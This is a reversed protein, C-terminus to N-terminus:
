VYIWEKTITNYIASFRKGSDNWIQLQYVGDINLIEDQTPNFGNLYQKCLVIHQQPFKHTM